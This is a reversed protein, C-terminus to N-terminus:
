QPAEGEDIMSTEAESTEEPMEALFDELTKNLQGASFSSIQYIYNQWYENLFVSSFRVFHDEGQKALSITLSKDDKLAVDLAMVSEYSTWVEDDLPQFQDFRLDTINSAVSDLIGSYKLERGEPMELLQNNGDEDKSISWVKEGERSVTLIDDEAIDLIPQKLWETEETPLSITKDLLWTQNQNPLRAYSGVFSSATKGILVQWSKGASQLTVLVAQSGEKGIDMLGLKPHNVVKATKAEVQQTQMLATILESLASADAPYDGQGVLHSALWVGDKQEAQFLVGAHNELRVKNVNNAKSSLDAFLLESETQKPAGQQLMFVSAGAVIVILLLLVISNKM